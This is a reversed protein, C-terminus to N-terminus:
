VKTSVVECEVGECSAERETGAHETGEREAGSASQVRASVGECRAITIQGKAGEAM